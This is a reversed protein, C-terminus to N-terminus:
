QLALIQLPVPYRGPHEVPHPHQQLALNGRHLLLLLQLQVAQAPPHSPSLPLDGTSGLTPAPVLDVLFPPPQSIQPMPQRCQFSVNGLAPHSQAKPGLFQPTLLVVELCVAVGAMLFPEPVPSLRATVLEEHQTAPILRRATLQAHSGHGIVPAQRQPQPHRIAQRCLMALIQGDFAHAEGIPMLLHQRRQAAVGLVSRVSILM